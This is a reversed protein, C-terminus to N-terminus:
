LKVAMWPRVSQVDGKYFACAAAPLGTKAPLPRIPGGFGTMPSAFEPAVACHAINVWEQRDRDAAEPFAFFGQGSEGLPWNILKTERLFVKYRADTRL